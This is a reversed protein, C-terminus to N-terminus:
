VKEPISCLSQILKQGLLASVCYSLLIGADRHEREGSSEAHSHSCYESFLASVMAPLPLLFFCGTRWPAWPTTAMIEKSLCTHGAWVVRCISVGPLISMQNEIATAVLAAWYVQKAEFIAGFAGNLSWSFLIKSCLSSVYKERLLLSM